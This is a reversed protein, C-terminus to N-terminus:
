STHPIIETQPKGVGVFAMCPHTIVGTILEDLKSWGHLVASGIRAHAGLSLGTAAAMRQMYALVDASSWWGGLGAGATQFRYLEMGKPLFTVDVKSIGSRVRGDAHAPTLGLNFVEDDM